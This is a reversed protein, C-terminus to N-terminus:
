VRFPDRGEHLENLAWKRWSQLQSNLELERKDAPASEVRLQFDLPLTEYNSLLIRVLPSELPRIKLDTEAQISALGDDFRKAIDAIRGAAEARFSRITSVVGQAELWEEKTLGAARWHDPLTKEASIERRYESYWARVHPSGLLRKVVEVREVKKGFKANFAELLARDSDSM